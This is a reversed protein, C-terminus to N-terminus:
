LCDTRACAPYDNATKRRWVAMEDSTPLRWDMMGCVINAAEWNCVTRNCGTYNSNNSDCNSQDATQGKWCCPQTSADCSQGAEVVKIGMNSLAAANINLDDGINYTMIKLGQFVTSSKPELPILECKGDIKSARFGSDCILCKSSTCLHCESEETEFKSCHLSIPLTSGGAGLKKSIVPAFAAIICSIAILSILLEILSFAAHKHSTHKNTNVGELDNRAASGTCEQVASCAHCDLATHNRQKCKGANVDNDPVLSKGEGRGLWLPVCDQVAREESARSTDGLPPLTASEKEFLPLPTSEKELRSFKKSEEKKSSSECLIQHM